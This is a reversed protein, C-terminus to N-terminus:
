STSDISLLIAPNKVYKITWSRSQIAQTSSISLPNMALMVITTDEVIEEVVEEGEFILIAEWAKLSLCSQTKKNLHRIM